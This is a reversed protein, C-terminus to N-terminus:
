PPNLILGTEALCGDILESRYQIKRLKCRVLRELGAPDTTVFNAISRRLLSWVGEAPNLQAYSPLQFM